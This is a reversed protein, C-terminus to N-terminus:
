STASWRRLRSERGGPLGGVKPARANADASAVDVAADPSAGRFNETCMFWAGYGDASRGGVKSVRCTPSLFTQQSSAAAM